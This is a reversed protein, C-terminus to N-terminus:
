AVPRRRARLGAVIAGVAEACAEVAADPAMGDGDVLTVLTEPMSLLSVVATARATPDPPAGIGSLLAAIELRRARRRRATDTEAPAARALARAHPLDRVARELSRRCHAPLDGAGAIPPLPGLREDAWATVAALAAGHVPFHLYATRTAVGASAAARSLSLGTTGGEGLQAALARLLAETTAAAQEDRKPSRYPRSNVAHDHM